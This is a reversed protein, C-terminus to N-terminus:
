LVCLPLQSLSTWLTQALIDIIFDPCSNYNWWILLFRTEVQLGGVTQRSAARQANTSSGINGSLGTGGSQTTGSPPALQEPEHARAKGKDSNQSSQALTPHSFGPINDEDFDDDDDALRM